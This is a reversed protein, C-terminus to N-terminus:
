PTGFTQAWRHLPMEGIVYWAMEALSPIGLDYSRDRKGVLKNSRDM